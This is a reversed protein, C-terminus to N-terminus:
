SKEGGHGATAASTGQLKLAVATLIVTLVILITSAANVEPTVSFRVMSYVKVPFTVTDPGATFFTIVFDDLSLTFALLAGAVLSPAMHPLIVDRITRFEGAGLDRAAEEMERNFSSMRARVVVAVFPFCFSVHAIIIAGLNLPWGLGQPWPLVKAFFVLMAVGMCIEPVVIPLALAGDVAPKGPFRFRWLALAIMAGLVVSLVTSVAAITLSNGFAEILGDNNLAKEYYKLTFGKWVINRRSDNFSFAMLAILPAYLFIFVAALWAQMQWRRLYELPGPASRKAM